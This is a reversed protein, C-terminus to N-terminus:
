DDTRAERIQWNRKGTAPDRRLMEGKRSRRNMPAERLWRAITPFGARYHKALEATTMRRAQWVFDPPMPRLPRGTIGERWGRKKMRTIQSPLVGLLEAVVQLEHSRSLLEARDVLAQPLARVM